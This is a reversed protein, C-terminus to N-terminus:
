SVLLEEYDRLVGLLKSEFEEEDSTRIWEVAFLLRERFIEHQAFHRSALQDRTTEQRAGRRSPNEMWPPFRSRPAYAVRPIKDPLRRTARSAKLPPAEYFPADEPLTASPPTM